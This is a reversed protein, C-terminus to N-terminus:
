VHLMVGASVSGSSVQWVVSACACALQPAQPKHRSAKTSVFTCKQPPGRSLDLCRGESCPGFLLQRAQIGLGALNLSIMQQMLSGLTQM